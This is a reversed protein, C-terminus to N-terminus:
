EGYFEKEDTFDSLEDKDYPFFSDFNRQWLFIGVLVAGFLILILPIWKVVFTTFSMSIIEMSFLLFVIGLVEILVAPVVYVGRVKHHKFVCTLVLCIGSLIVIIPWLHEPGFPLVNSFVFTACLGACFLLLGLFFLVAWHLVTMALYFIVAGIIMVAIPGAPIEAGLGASFYSILFLGALILIVGAALLANLVPVTIKKM